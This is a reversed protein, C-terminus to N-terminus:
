SSLSPAPQRRDATGVSLTSVWERGRSNSSLRSLSGFVSQFPFRHCGFLLGDVRVIFLRLPRPLAGAPLSPRELIRPVDSGIPRLTGTTRRSSRGAPFSARVIRRVPRASSPGNRVPLGVLQMRLEDGPRILTVVPHSPYLKILQVFAAQDFVGITRPRGVNGASAELYERRQHLRAADPHDVAFGNFFKGLSAALLRSLASLRDRCRRDVPVQSIEAVCEPPCFFPSDNVVNGFELELTRGLLNRGKNRRFVEDGNELRARTALRGFRM